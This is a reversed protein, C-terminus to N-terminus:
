GKAKGAGLPIVIGGGLAFQLMSSYSSVGAGGGGTGFYVSGGVSQVASQIGTQLKIGFKPSAYINVGLKLAWAFKTANDSRGPGSVDFIAAGLGLGGYGEIKENDFKQYRNFSLMIWNIAVDLEDRKEGANYYTTPAKTDQRLYLLEIGNANQVIYELGAGWVLGGKITTNFYSTNSYYSDVADDFVYYAYGNLRMNQANTVYGILILCVIIIKKM